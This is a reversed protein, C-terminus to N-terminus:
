TMIRSDRSLLSDVEEEGKARRGEVVGVRIREKV